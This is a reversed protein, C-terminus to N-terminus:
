LKSFVLLVSTPHFNTPSTNNPSKLVPTVIAAKWCDPFSSSLYEIKNILKTILVAMCQPSVQIFKTSFGNIGVAKNFDLQSIYDIVDQVNM